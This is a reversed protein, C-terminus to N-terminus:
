FLLTINIIQTIPLPQTSSMAMWLLKIQGRNKPEDMILNRKAIIVNYALILIYIRM